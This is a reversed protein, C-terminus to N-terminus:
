FMPDSEETQNEIADKARISLLHSAETMKERAWPSLFIFVLHCEARHEKPRKERGTPIM